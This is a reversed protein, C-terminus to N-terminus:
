DQLWFSEGFVRRRKSGSTLGALLHRIATRYAGTNRWERFDGINRSRRIDAPWGSEVKMVTNDLMIPLLVLCDKKREKEFATEVEKEVWQSSISNKSLVLLLKDYANIREDLQVRTKAGVELSKPAYFCEVEKRQLSTHLRNLFAQDKASYSIFCSQFEWTKGAESVLYDIDGKPIGCGRLFARPVKGNSLYIVDIGMVQFGNYWVTDLGKTASLDNAAFTTGTMWADDFDAGALRAGQFTTFKIEGSRFNASSLDAWTFDSGSIYAERLNANVLKARRLSTLKLDSRSLNIRSLDWDDLNMGELNPVIKPNERRWKNWVVVGQKLIALQENPM